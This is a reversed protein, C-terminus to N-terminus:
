IIGTIDEDAAFPRGYPNTFTFEAQKAVGGAIYDKTTAPAESLVLILKRNRVNDRYVIRSGSVLQIFAEYKAIVYALSAVADGAMSAPATFLLTLKVKTEGPYPSMCIDTAMGEAYKESYMAHAGHSDVGTASLYIIGPMQQMVDTEEGITSTGDSGETIRSIYIKPEEM